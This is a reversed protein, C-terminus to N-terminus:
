FLGIVLKLHFKMQFNSGLSNDNRLINIVRMGDRNFINTETSIKDILPSGRPIVVETLFSM